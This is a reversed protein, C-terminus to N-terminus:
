KTVKTIQLANINAMDTQVHVRHGFLVWVLSFVRIGHLCAVTGSPIEDPIYFLEALNKQVSFALLAPNKPM